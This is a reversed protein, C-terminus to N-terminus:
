LQRGPLEGVIEGARPSAAQQSAALDHCVLRALGAVRALTEADLNDAVDAASHVALTARNLAGSSFTLCPIGRQHFPIADIGVAPPLWIRRLRMGQRRAITAARRALPAAFRHGLGYREIVVAHGPNGAGDFNLALVPGSRLEAAHEDLWRLAGVMHDEEAGPSLFVLDVDPPLERPLRRALEFLVGVSGANDVGGPSRNGSTLTSLVLLALAASGGLAPALWRPGFAAGSTVGVLLVVILACAGLIALLTLGMRVPFTLNQSKSDHHAMLILTLRKSEARRRGYVNATRTRGERRYLAQAGPAWALLTGGALVGAGLLGLAPAPFRPGLAGSIAMLTASVVLVLRIARFARTVDYSFPEEATELGSEAFRRAIVRRARPDGATGPYRPFAIEAAERKIRAGDIPDRAPATM